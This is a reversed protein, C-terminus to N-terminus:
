RMTLLTRLDALTVEMWDVATFVELLAATDLMRVAEPDALLTGIDEKLQKINKIHTILKENIDATQM